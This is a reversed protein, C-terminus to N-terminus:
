PSSRRQSEPPPAVVQGQPDAHKKLIQDAPPTGKSLNLLPIAKDINEINKRLAALSEDLDKLSAMMPGLHGLEQVSRELQANSADLRVLVLKLSGHTEALEGYLRELQANSRELATNTQRLAPALEALREVGARTAALDEHMQQVVCGPLASITSALALILRVVTGHYLRPRSCMAAHSASVEYGPRGNSKKGGLSRPNGVYDGARHAVVCGSMPNCAVLRLNKALADHVRNDSLATQTRLRVIARVRDSQTISM